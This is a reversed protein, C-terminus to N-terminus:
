VGAKGIKKRLKYKHTNLVLLSFALKGTEYINLTFVNLKVLLKIRSSVLFNAQIAGSVVENDAM